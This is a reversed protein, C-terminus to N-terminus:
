ASNATGALGLGAGRSTKGMQPSPVVVVPDPCNLHSGQSNDKPGEVEEGGEGRGDM